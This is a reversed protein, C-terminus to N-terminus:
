IEIAIPTKFLEVVDTRNSLASSNNPQGSHHVYKFLPYISEYQYMEMAKPKKQSDHLVIIEARNKLARAIKIRQGAPKCDIFVLGYNNGEGIKEWDGDKVFKVRHNGDQYAKNLDYYEKQSELSLLPRDYYQCLWHLVPTSNYGTGCELVRGITLHFAKILIPLHSGFGPKIM